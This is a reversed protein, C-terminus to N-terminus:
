GAGAREGWCWAKGSSDLACSHQLGTCVAAFPLDGAVLVPISSKEGYDLSADGNGLQGHGGNGAAM